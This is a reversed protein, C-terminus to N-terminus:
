DASDIIADVEIEIRLEPAVLRSVEVMTM